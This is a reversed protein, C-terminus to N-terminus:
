TVIQVSPFIQEAAVDVLTANPRASLNKKLISVPLKTQLSAVKPPLVAPPMFSHETGLVTPLEDDPEEDELLELLEELEPPPASVSGPTRHALMPSNQLKVPVPVTKNPPQRPVEAPPPHACLPGTCAVFPILQVSALKPKVAGNPPTPSFAQQTTTDVEDLLELEEDLLEDDLLEEELEDLEELEELEPPLVQAAPDVIVPVTSQPPIVTPVSHLLATSVSGGIKVSASPAVIFFTRMLAKDAAPM